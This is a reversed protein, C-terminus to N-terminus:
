LGQFDVGEIEEGFIWESSNMDICVEGMLKLAEGADEKRESLAAQLSVDFSDDRNVDYGNFRCLARVISNHEESRVNEIYSVNKIANRQIIKILPDSGKYSLGKIARALLSSDIKDSDTIEKRLRARSNRVAVLDDDAERDVSIETQEYISM